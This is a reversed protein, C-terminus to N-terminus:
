VYVWTQKQVIHKQCYANFCLANYTMNIEDSKCLTYPVNLIIYTCLNEIKNLGPYMYVCVYVINEINIWFMWQDTNPCINWLSQFVSYFSSAWVRGLSMNRGSRLHSTGLLTKPRHKSYWLSKGVETLSSRWYSVFCVTYHYSIIRSYLKEGNDLLRVTQSIGGHRYPLMQINIHSSGSIREM